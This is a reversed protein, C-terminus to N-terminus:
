TADFAWGANVSARCQSPEDGASVYLSTLMTAGHTLAGEDLPGTAVLSVLGHGIIWAQVATDLPELDPRFRGATQARIVASVLYHLTSDAAAPNELDFGADFMVRYLDPNDLGNRAYISGMAALDRVPDSTEEVTALAAGLRSFGEQRLAKWLGDIGDFYTYVAMTSVETGKVLARLTVPQRTNLLHAAREILM